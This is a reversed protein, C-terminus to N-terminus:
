NKKLETFKISLIHLDEDDGKFEFHVVNEQIEDWTIAKDNIKATEPQTNEPLLLWYEHKYDPVSRAVIECTSRDPDWSFKTIETGQTIHRSSSILQPRDKKERICIVEVNRPELSTEYSNKYIGRFTSTWFEFIAYERNPDLGIDMFDLRIQRKEESIPEITRLDLNEGWNFLGVIHYEGLGNEQDDVLLDWIEPYEHTFLDIPRMGRGRPRYIPLLKSVINFHEPKLNTFKEGVKFIGGSLGMISAQVLYENRKLPKRFQIVDCHTFWVRNHLYYRRTIVKANPKIGQEIPMIPGDKGWAPMVDLTIREGNVLGYHFQCLGGIGVLFVNPGLADRIIEFGRVMAEISTMEKDILNTGGILNYTFDTKIWNVNYVHKIKIFLSKLWKQVDPNSLDLPLITKSKMPFTEDWELAWEPHEKYLKSNVSIEFPRIWLGTKVGHKLIENFVPKLGNPFRDPRPEWDGVDIQYGDDIQFYELGFKGLNSFAAKFNEIINDETLYHVLVMLNQGSEDHPDTKAPNGWSNWGHPIPKTRPWPNIAMFKAISGAYHELKEFPNLGDDLNFYIKNSTYVKGPRLLKFPIISKKIKWDGFSVLEGSDNSKFGIDEDENTVIEVMANTREIVGICLSRKTEIDYFLVNGNSDSEENGPVCRINFSFTGALGAELIRCRSTDKFFFLGSGTSKSTIAPYVELLEQEIDSANHLVLELLFSPEGDYFYVKLTMKPINEDSESVIEIMRGKGLNDEFHLISLDHHFIEHKSLHTANNKLKYGWYFNKLFVIPNSGLVRLIDLVGSNRDFHLNFYKNVIIDGNM